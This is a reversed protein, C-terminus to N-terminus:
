LAICRASSTHLQVCQRPQGQYVITGGDQLSALYTIGKYIVTLKNRGPAILGADILDALTTAAKGKKGPETKPKKAQVGPSTLMMLEFRGCIHTVPLASLVEWPLAFVYKRDLSHM